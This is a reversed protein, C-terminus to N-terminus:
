GQHECVMDLGTIGLDVSGDRVSVVIDGPRQFLVTLGRLEPIAGVYQRAGPKEVALGCASLFALSADALRGKSPLSLRIDNRLTM